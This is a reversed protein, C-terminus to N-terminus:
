ALARHIAEAALKGDQVASVTLDAGAVCDGGAYVRELSTRRDADVVIRGAEIRPGAPPILVQGVAKLLMDAPLTEREETIVLRQGDLRTRACVVGTLAGASAMLEVPAVWHRLQVGNLRAWDQEDPTASMQAAGRRYLLTVQGAGLRRSQVAADIATNGGGVVVVRRGVAVTSKDSAQRLKAIFDVADLVGFVAENGLGLANVGAQGIGLFVADHTARLSDLTLDRGLAQNYRIEIGGIALIYATERQAFDDALKYAAIGYENLGGPKERAEFVTVEHGYVALRHACSLGAPGAGLVAVRKGTTPARTFPQAGEAMMWDTARRQLAGIQLPRSEQATRVCAQECLIETPCARACTGGFINEQLILTGAGRLNGTAIGRIFGPIDIGTPCAAVCPADHCFYCRNAEVVAADPSLPPHADAFNAALEAAPLRGAAIDPAADTM